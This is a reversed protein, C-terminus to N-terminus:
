ALGRVDVATMGAARAAAVGDDTDEFALCREPSVGIRRAALQFLEPAPKGRTVDESTVVAAFADTWALRRLVLEITARSGSTAIALPVRGRLLPLLRAAPLQPIDAVELEALLRGQKRAHLEEDSCACARGRLFKPIAERWTGGVNDYYDAETLEIGVDAFVRRYAAYHAPMTDVLTGDFDFVVADLQAPLMASSGM